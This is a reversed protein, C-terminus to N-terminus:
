KQEYFNSKSTFELYKQYISAAVSPYMGVEAYLLVGGYKLYGVIHGNKLVLTIVLDNHHM